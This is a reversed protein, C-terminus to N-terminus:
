TSREKKKTENRDYAFWLILVYKNKSKMFENIQPDCHSDHSIDM